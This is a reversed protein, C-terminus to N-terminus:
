RRQKTYYVDLIRPSQKKRQKPIIAANKNLLAIRIEEIEIYIYIYIYNATAM